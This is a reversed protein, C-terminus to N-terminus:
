ADSARLKYLQSDPHWWHKGHLRKKENFKDAQEGIEPEASCNNLRFRQDRSQERKCEVAASGSPSLRLPTTLIARHAHM